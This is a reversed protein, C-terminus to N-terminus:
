GDGRGVDWAEADEDTATDFVDWAIVAAQGVDPPM